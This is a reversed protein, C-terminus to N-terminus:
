SLHLRCSWTVQRVAYGMMPIEVPGRDVTLRHFDKRAMEIRTGHSLLLTLLDAIRRGLHRARKEINGTLRYNNFKKETRSSSVGFFM